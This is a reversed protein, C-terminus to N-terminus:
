EHGLKRTAEVLMLAIAKPLSWDGQFAKTAGTTEHELRAEFFHPGREDASYGFIIELKAPFRRAVASCLRMVKDLDSSYDPVVFLGETGNKTPRQWTPIAPFPLEEYGQARLLAHNIERATLRHIPKM